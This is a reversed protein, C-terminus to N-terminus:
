EVAARPARRALCVGAGWALAVVFGGAVLASGTPTPGGPVAAATATAPAASASVAGAAHAIAGGAIMGAVTAFANANGEGTMVIQRVPCGGALVGCLGVLGISLANAALDAHAAPQGVFSLHFKGAAAAVLAYGAVFTGAAALMWRPGRFVERAASVACFGTATLVAGAALAIGLAALWPAHPPPGPAGPGPGALSGALFLVLLLAIVGPGLLGVALPAPKTKGPSYGFRELLVGIGVGGVFGPLAAWATLDGGGLRQLMRFPCGLFVLAAIAMVVGLGFRVIWDGSARGLSRGTAACFVLAGLVVGAVEPRFVAPGASLRLAGGLDRLFCVGCLGMNGPNGLLVLGAAAAGVAALLVVGLLRASRSREGRLLPTSPTRPTM